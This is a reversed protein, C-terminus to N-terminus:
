SLISEISFSLSTCVRLRPSKPRNFSSSALIPSSSLPSSSLSSSLPSSSSSSSFPLDPTPSTSGTISSGVIGMYAFCIANVQVIDTNVNLLKKLLSYSESNILLDKGVSVAKQYLMHRTVQNKKQRM